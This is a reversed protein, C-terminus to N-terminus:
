RPCPCTVLGVKSYAAALYVVASTLVALPAAGIPIGLAFGLVAFALSVGWLWAWAIRSLSALGKRGPRRRM